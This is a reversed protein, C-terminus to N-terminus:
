ARLEESQKDEAHSGHVHHTRFYHWAVLVAIAQMAACLLFHSGLRWDGPPLHSVRALIATGLLPTVIVGLSSISQLSGMLEGQQDAPTSKSVIAQLAPGAAFALVNCLILAYMMWGHTALGYGVFALAGSSIGLLSLRVEGFRRILVALLGAQVVASVLGVCFMAIGNDRPTWDFRFTTYLVWTSQLMMQGFTVLTMVIVLGRIDRRRVLRLLAGLPNLRAWAFPARRGPPLSEPVMFCGYLLNAASLAAAVYFPLHLDNNGLMGGLMPGCIFGLGFAAGIKGFSKARNEKTSIDSAYAAAVSMSASSMGGIIRGAFLWFLTPAWATVLFNICMGTMSYLLVPRRGVRDSLAGLAPMFLFQLVGFTAALVGFWLAQDDRGPVFQGVLLPMVPVILGIGLMDIFICVLVFNLNGPASPATTSQPASSSSM